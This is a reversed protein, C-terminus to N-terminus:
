FYQSVFEEPTLVPINRKKAEETKGSSEKAVVVFTKGSVSSGLKAGVGKLREELAKDRFGTFVVTKEYLAHSTDVIIKNEPVADTMELKSELGCEKVFKLFEPIHDVFSQATKKEIGNIAVLKAISPESEALVNPYEALIMEARKTSFGRGLKNSVAMLTALSMKDVAARIGELLKQATKEQFGEVKLFDEKTMRLIKPVSDHGAKIMKEVNKPGLGDVEIGKFFGTINKELVTANGSADALMVDVHTDNWIYDVDPMKGKEAPTTVAQIKPIVDGSRVIQIIAGINIKNAEIYAGNFGTAFQITVGGLKLPMIQVRPKLYGDKSASWLVDVVHAEAVQDSLVMKFAFSHDPNGTARPHVNDDAVIVGDIEFMYNKRWDQLVESLSENTINALIENQVVDVDLSALKAMQESTTLASPKIVEYAVFRIDNIKDDVTKRNVIGAVLNRPNAFEAAYKTAFVEKPIVFEGRIVIGKEKPLRLKPILHSIDQGVKGDGRTYLKPVEGETSYMGSVGDLKCSLVYPGNYKGKWSTLAGTDPKIKDMSAMEYPLTVKNKEVPAGIGEPKKFKNTIYEYLIDYENDTMLPAGVTYYANNADQIMKNLQAETLSDLVQIGDKKFLEVYNQNKKTIRRKIVVKNKKTETTPSPSRSKVAPVAKPEEISKSKSKPKPKPEEVPVPISKPKPEEVPVSKVKPEEVISNPKPEEVPVPTASKSKVAGKVKVASGDVRDVPKKYELNLFDFIAQEDSFVDEVKDGKKRNEMVSLGHENLTYKMSLAHERMVTNFEKSGTFYLVSFPYEEPTTYLFDVRRAYQAGPLKAVVLCKSNGRSLVEVIIQRSLLEDIFLKFVNSHSSTIIVDIDGSSKMGRRYSGVIEFRSCEVNKPFASKFIKEYEKIESRPIRQLIDNYYKLGILQKDNLVETKHLELEEMTTIGKDVLEEASKEGVGYINAFVDIAKKKAIIDKSEELVRLTGTATYDVLKQYITTGIGKKDKLQEPNTIDGSFGAITEKANAYARARMADKRVRMVYGLTEMLEVYRENLRPQAMPKTVGSLKLDNQNKRTKKPVKIKIKVKVTQDM